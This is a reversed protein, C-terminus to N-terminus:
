DDEDDPCLLGMQHLGDVQGKILRTARDNMVKAFRKRPSLMESSWNADHTLVQLHQVKEENLVDELRDFRWYGLSDSCYSYNEKFFSAYSNILGGYQYELCSQTFPTTNHFSFTDIKVDMNKELYDRDIAIYDNLQDESTIGWYASDFHLGVCHGLDKIHHFVDRYHPDMVNYYPSHLQFFYTALIGEEHEIQAMMIAYDPEFEVDHRWIIDKREAVYKDRHFIFQFGKDKALQILRRYNAFTFEDFRYKERNNMKIIICRDDEFVRAM